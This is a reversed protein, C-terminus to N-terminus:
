QPIRLIPATPTGVLAVRGADIEAKLATRLRDALTPDTSAPPPPPPTVPAAREIAPM